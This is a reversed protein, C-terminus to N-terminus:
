HGYSGPRTFCVYLSFARFYLHQPNIIIIVAIIYSCHIHYQLNEYCTYYEQTTIGLVYSGFPLTLLIIIIAMKVQGGFCQSYLHITTNSIERNHSMTDMRGRWCIICARRGCSSYSWYFERALPWQFHKTTQQLQKAFLVMHEALHFHPHPQFDNPATAEYLKSADSFSTVALIAATWMKHKPDLIPTGSRGSRSKRDQVCLTCTYSSVKMHILILWYGFSTVAHCAPCRYVKHRTHLEKPEYLM